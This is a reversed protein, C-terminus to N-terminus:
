WVVEFEYLDDGGAPDEVLVALIYENEESPQRVIEVSGRGKLKTLKLQMPQQPLDM